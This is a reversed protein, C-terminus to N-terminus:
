GKTETVARKRKLARKLTNVVSNSPASEQHLLSTM